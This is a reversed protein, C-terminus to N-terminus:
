RDAAVDKEEVLSSFVPSEALEDDSVPHGAVEAAGTAIITDITGTRTTTHAHHRGAAEAEAGAVADSGARNGAGAGADTTAGTGTMVGADVPSTPAGATAPGSSVAPALGATAAAGKVAPSADNGDVPAAGGEDDSSAAAARQIGSKTGLEVNPLLCVFVITIIALPAAILFVDAVGQGYASEVITRIPGPLTSLDPISSASGGGLASPDVGASTLDDTIYGSVKTGLVAGMVSVGITGGLSRFFAVSSSAAGVVSVDVSNQVVLVLNQMVMGIGLGMMAMFVSVVFFNTDYEITSMLFLGAALLVSGVIMYPKWKGYKSILAGAVMSSILLGLVMPLTLIGAMTPSQGRALQMYQGLFVSTGFMAVGVSLSAIVAFTFTRNKFLTLPIIPEKTRFEVIVALVLLVAAGVGMLWSATSNWEFQKGGLSVWVLLLSVGGAILGAGWYDVVVAKKPKAPLHLTKQIVILAAIGVPVGVFFNWRWGISDTLVGGLLPGGITGVSMVAGLYGMYRGRERPSIIDSMVVQVLATLGGAGLGQFVRFTILTATNQSFGAAVSALVFLVLAVQLLVKRNTLDSFKGWLPTSVTTALLTATIVWTYSTQSGNLDSVIRPLSTSVVTSSLIAVLMGMLLGSLATLVERHSM